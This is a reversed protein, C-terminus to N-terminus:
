SGFLATLHSATKALGSAARALREWWGEGLKDIPMEVTFLRLSLYCFHGLVHTVSKPNGVFSFTVNM